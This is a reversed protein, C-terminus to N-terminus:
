ALHAKTESLVAPLDGSGIARLLFAVLVLGALILGPRRPLRAVAPVASWSGVIAFAIGVLWAASAVGPHIATIFDGAALRALVAFLPSMLLALAQGPGLRLWGGMVALPRALWGPSRASRVAYVGVLLLVYGLVSLWTTWPQLNQALRPAVGQALLFLLLGGPL